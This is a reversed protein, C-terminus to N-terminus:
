SWRIELVARMFGPLHGEVVADRAKAADLLASILGRHWALPFFDHDIEVRCRGEAPWAVYREGFNLTAAYPVRLQGLLARPARNLLLLARGRMTVLFSEAAQRGVAEFVQETGGLTRELRDAVAWLVTLGDEVPYDSLDARRGTGTPDCLLATSDDAHARAVEFAANTALGAVSDHSTAAALRAALDLRDAPMPPGMM